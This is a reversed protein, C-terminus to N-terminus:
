HRRVFCKPPFSVSRERGSSINGILKRSCNGLGTALAYSKVKDSELEERHMDVATLQNNEYTKYYYIGKSANICCSYTTIDWREDARM